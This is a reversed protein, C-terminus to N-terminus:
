LVNSFGNEKPHVGSFMAERDRHRASGFPNMSLSDRRRFGRWFPSCCIRLSCHSTRATLKSSRVPAGKSFTWARPIRNLWTALRWPTPRQGHATTNTRTSGSSQNQVMTDKIPLNQLHISIMDFLIESTQISCFISFCIFFLNSFFLLNHRPSHRLSFMISTLVIPPM